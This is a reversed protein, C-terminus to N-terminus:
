TIPWTRSNARRCRSYGCYSAPRRRGDRGCFEVVTLVGTIRVAVHGMQEGPWNLVEVHASVTGAALEEDAGHPAGGLAVRVQRIIYGLVLVKHIRPLAVGDVVPDTSTIREMIFAPCLKGCSVIKQSTMIWRRVDSYWRPSTVIWSSQSSSPKWLMLCNKPKM